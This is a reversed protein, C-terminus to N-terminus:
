QGKGEEAALVLAKWCLWAKAMSEATSDSWCWPSLETAHRRPDGWPWRKDDFGPRIGVAHGAPAKWVSVHWGDEVMESQLRATWEYSHFDPVPEADRVDGNGHDVFMPWGRLRAIAFNREERESTIAILRNREARDPATM